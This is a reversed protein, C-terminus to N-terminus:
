LQSIAVFFRSTGFETAFSPVNWDKSINGVFAVVDAATQGPNLYPHFAYFTTNSQKIWALTWSDLDFQGGLWDWPAQAVQGTDALAVAMDPIISNIAEACARWTQYAADRKITMPENMLEAAFASPHRAVEVALLSWFRVFDARGDVDEVLFDMTKQSITTFGTQQPNGSNIALCCENLLNYNPDGAHEAWKAPGGTGNCRDWGTLTRVDYDPLLSFPLGVALPKGIMEPAAKKSFWIPVGNGCGASGVMDGHNDLMVHIGTRDTLDLLAHLKSLFAPDLADEDRPQAGAWVVGLRIFNWGMNRMHDVDAENFTACSTCNGITQCTSDVVDSCISDGSVKPM